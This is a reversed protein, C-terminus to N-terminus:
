ILKLNNFGPTPFATLAKRKQARIKAQSVVKKILNNTQSNRKQTRFMLELLQLLKTKFRASKM